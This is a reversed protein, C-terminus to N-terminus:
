DFFTQWMIRSSGSDTQYSYNQIYALPMSGKTLIGAKKTALEIVVIEDGIMGLIYREDPTWYPNVFGSLGLDTSSGGKNELLLDAQQTDSTSAIRHEDPLIINGTIEFATDEQQKQSDILYISGRRNEIRRKTFPAPRQFFHPQMTRSRIQNFHLNQIGVTKAWFEDFKRDQSIVQKEHSSLNVSKNGEVFLGSFYIFGGDKSFRPGVLPEDLADLLVTNATTLGHLYLSSKDSKEVEYAIQESDPGFEVTKCHEALQRQELTNIFLVSCRESTNILGFKEGDPSIVATLIKEKALSRRNAGNLGISYLRGDEGFFFVTINPNAWSTNSELDPYRPTNRYKTIYLFAISILVLSVVGIVIWKCVRFIAGLIEKLLSQM